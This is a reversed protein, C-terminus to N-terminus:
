AGPAPGREAQQRALQAAAEPPLTLQLQERVPM